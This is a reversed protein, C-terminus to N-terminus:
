GNATAGDLREIDERVFESFPKGSVLVLPDYREFEFRAAGSELADLRELAAAPTRFGLDDFDRFITAKHGDLFDLFLTERKFQIAEAVVTSVDSLAYRCRLLLDYPSDTTVEVNGLPRAAALLDDSFEGALGKGATPKIKLYITRDPFREAVATVTEAMARTGIAAAVFVVIADANRGAIKDPYAGLFSKAGAARVRMWDPWYPRYYDAVRQGIVYFVDYDLFQYVPGLISSCPLTGMVGLSRGGQRRLEQSRVIHEQDYPDRAWFFRIRHMALFTRLRARSVVTSVIPFFFAPNLGGYDRFLAAAQGVVMAAVALAQPPSVAGDEICVRKLREPYPWDEGFPHAAGAMIRRSRYVALIDQRGGFLDLFLQGDRSDSVADVAVLAEERRRRFLVIRRAVTVLGALCIVLALAFNVPLSGARRSARAGDTGASGPFLTQDLGSVEPTLGVFAQPRNSDRRIRDIYFLARYYREAGMAVSKKFILASNTPSAVHRDFEFHRALFGETRSAVDQLYPYMEVDRVERLEPYLDMLDVVRKRATLWAVLRDLRAALSPVIPVTAVVCVRRGMAVHALLRLVNLETLIYFYIM